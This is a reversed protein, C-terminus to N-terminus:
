TSFYLSMLTIAYEVLALDVILTIAMGLVRMHRPAAPACLQRAVRFVGEELGREVLQACRKQRTVFPFNWLNKDKLFSVDSGNWGRM